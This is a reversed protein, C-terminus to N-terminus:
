GIVTPAPPLQYLLKQDQYNLYGEIKEVIVDAPPPPPPLTTTYSRHVRLNLLLIQLHLHLFHDAVLQFLFYV